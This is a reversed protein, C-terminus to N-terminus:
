VYLCHTNILGEVVVFAKRLIFSVSYILISVM